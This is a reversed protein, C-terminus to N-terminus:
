DLVAGARMASLDHQLKHPTDTLFLCAVSATLLGFAAGSVIQWPLLLTLGPSIVRGRMM